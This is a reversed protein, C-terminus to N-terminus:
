DRLESIKEKAQELDTCGDLIMQVMQLIKDFQRDTMIMGKMIM